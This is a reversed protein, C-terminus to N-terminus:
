KRMILALLLIGGGAYLLKPDINNFFSASPKPSGTPQRTARTVPGPARKMLEGYVMNRYVQGTATVFPTAKGNPGKFLKKIGNKAIRYTSYTAPGIIPIKKIISKFPKGVIKKAGKFVKKFGKKLKSFFGM